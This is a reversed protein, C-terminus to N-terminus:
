VQTGTSCRYLVLVALEAQLCVVRQGNDWGAASTVWPVTPVAAAM